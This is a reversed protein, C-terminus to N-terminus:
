ESEDLLDNLSGSSSNLEDESEKEDDKPDECIDKEQCNINEITVVENDEDSDIKNQIKELTIENEEEDTKVEEDESLGRNVQKEVFEEFVRNIKMEAVKGLQVLKTDLEADQDAPDGSDDPRLYSYMVNGDDINRRKKLKKGIAIFIKEAENHIQIDQLKLKNEVNVKEIQKKIDWFDPFTQTKNVFREIKKNIEPYM